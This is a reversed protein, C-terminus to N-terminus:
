DGGSLDLKEVAVAMDEAKDHVIGMWGTLVLDTVSETKDIMWSESEREKSVVHATEGFTDGNNQFWDGCNAKYAEVINKFPANQQLWIVQGPNLKMMDEVVYYHSIEDGWGQDIHANNTATANRHRPLQYQYFLLSHLDYIHPLAVTYGKPYGLPQFRHQVVADSPCVEDELVARITLRLDEIDAIEATTWNRLLAARQRVNSQLRRATRVHHENHFAESYLWLRYVARRLRFCEEATLSRREEYNVKWKKGPYIGEWERAIKGIKVISKLNHLTRPLTRKEHAPQSTNYTIVQVVESLPGYENEAAAYLIPLQRIPSLLSHFHRSTSTLALIDRVSTCSQFIQLVLENALESFQM